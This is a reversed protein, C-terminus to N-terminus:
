LGNITTATNNFFSQLDGGMATLGVITAIAIFAIILAYETSGQGITTNLFNRITGM